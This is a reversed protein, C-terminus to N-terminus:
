NKEVIDTMDQPNVAVYRIEVHKNENDIDSDKSFFDYLYMILGIIIFTLGIFYLRYEKTLINSTINSTLLDDVLNFWANKIGIITEGITYEYLPKSYKIRNLNLLREDDLEKNRAKTEKIEKEFNANFNALNFTKKSQQIKDSNDSNM